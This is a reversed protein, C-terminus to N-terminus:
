RGDGRGVGSKDAKNKRKADEEEEDDEPEKEKRRWGQNIMKKKNREADEEDDEAEMETRKWESNDAKDKREEDDEAEM